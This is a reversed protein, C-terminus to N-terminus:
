TRELLKGLRLAVAAPSKGNVVQTYGLQNLVLLANAARVGAQCHLVIGRNLEPVAMRISEALEALPLNLAGPVYGTAYEAPSRVDIVVPNEPWVETNM